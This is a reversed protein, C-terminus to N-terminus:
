DTLLSKLAALETVFNDAGARVKERVVYRGFGVFREVVPKAEPADRRPM